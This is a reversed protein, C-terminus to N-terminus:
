QFKLEELVKMEKSSFILVFSKENGMIIETQEEQYLVWYVEDYGEMEIFKIKYEGPEWGKNRRIYSEMMVLKEESIMDSDGMSYKTRLDEKCSCGAVILAFLICVM